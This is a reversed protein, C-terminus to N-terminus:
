PERLLATVETRNIRRLALTLGIASIAPVLVGLAALAGWPVTALPPPLAFFLSLVRVSLVGLGLGVPIGIVLSGVVAVAGDTLPGALTRPTDAGVTRLIAFEKRREMVLFAGLVGVGLSAIGASAVAEIRSLGDLNLATLGRQQQRIREALTSVAYGATSGDHRLQAAVQAPNHGSAVHALYFDAPPVPNPVTSTSIVMESLPDTPPFARYVGVVHLDLQQSLDLDDPFVTVPITDGPAVGFDTAIEQSVLVGSPRGALADLGGGSTIQPAIATASRYSAPDVAMITKRDSGARAPISHIPTVGHVGPGPHPPPQVLETNPTLRLDAGFAARADTRTATHYTAAFTATQTGFAVALVGLTLSVSARAPRRGLWRLATAPWTTLPRPRDPRSYRALLRLLGRVTLLSIGLWLALPALLVYFALALAPGQVPAPKLGGVIVNGALIALGVAVAVIDLHGRRWLPPRPPALLRRDTVLAAKRGARILPVLRAATVVTGVLTSLAVALALQGAPIGHWVAHGVGGSVAAAAAGLGIVTGVGGALTGQGVALRVLHSDSAGRLRLLAEERRHAEALASAVALGLAAAVLVGPVGLLFFLTRANTADTGAEHLPEAANDAVLAQGPVQRELSRRLQGSWVEAAGPDTPYARHDVAVHSELSVPPLESLGPNTISTAGGLATRAAPLILRRFTDYDVMISRPAVVVDGQVDGAPIAFWTTADRLDARGAVPLSVGLPKVDGRLDISVRTAGKFDPSGAVADNLLVGKSLDGNTHVWPHHALYSPSVASLRASVRGSAGPASVVVDASGFVDASKVGPVTSLQKSLVQPDIGLSTGVARMEVQVPSLAVRTMVHSSDDVYLLTAALTAVPLAVALAALLLRLPARRVTRLVLWFM